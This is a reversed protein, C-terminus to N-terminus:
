NINLLVYTGGSIVSGVMASMDSFGLMKSTALGAFVTIFLGLIKM